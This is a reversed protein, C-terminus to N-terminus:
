RVRATQHKGHTATEATVTSALLAMEDLTVRFVAQVEDVLGSWGRACDHEDTPMAGAQSGPCSVPNYEGEADYYNM